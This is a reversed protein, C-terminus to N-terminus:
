SKVLQEQEKNLAALMENSDELFKSKPFSRKLKDYAKIAVKIREAKRRQTSKMVFDHAAKLRFYLAEEKYKTGLYDSLLNDFAVIAARYNRSDYGATNYYTKAIEFAKKELKGRLETYYKNAEPLKDSDPYADIFVQFSELAKNIGTPDLSFGPSSKYYSLASLFAAEEKKSSKPYNKSFRDFYYGALSYNKENFNAQSVMYQIREMQPKGRYAPTAKEFLRIAKSYKQAEYMKVAMKYQDQVSGKNLVNHYEGCSSLILLMLVLYALNKIKQM